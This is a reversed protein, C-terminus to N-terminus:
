KLFTVLLIPGLISLDVIKFNSVAFLLKRLAHARLEAM